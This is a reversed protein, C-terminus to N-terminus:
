PAESRPQGAVENQVTFQGSSRLEGTVPDNITFWVPGDPFQTTDIM